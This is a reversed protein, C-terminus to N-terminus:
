RMADCLAFQEADKLDHQAFSTNGKRKRKSKTDADKRKYKAANASNTAARIQQFSGLHPHRSALQGLPRAIPMLWGMSTAM